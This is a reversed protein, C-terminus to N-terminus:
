VSQRLYIVTMLAVCLLAETLLIAFIVPTPVFYPSLKKYFELLIGGAGEMSHYQYLWRTIMPFPLFTAPNPGLPVMIFTDSVRMLYGLVTYAFAILVSIIYSRNCWVVLCICPMAAAWILVAAGVTLFLQSVWGETPTGLLVALFMAIGYGALEYAVDFALIVSLKAIALRGKSVPVCMLNKLTDYDHEEFFLNAAIIVSLPTLLLMGNDERVVSMLNDLSKDKLIVCYLVPIIFCTLFAYQFLRKRKLKWFECTILKLM